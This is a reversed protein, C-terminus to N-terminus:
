GKGHKSPAARLTLTSQATHTAGSPDHAVITARALLVHSKALLKRATSSLHLTVAKTQGGAVTFSGASLTLVAKHKSSAIVAHLTRLTIRGICSSEGPPCTIKVVLSGGASVTLSTRGGLAADPFGEKFGLVGFRTAEDAHTKAAATEATARAEREQSEQAGKAAREQAAKERAEREVVEGEVIATVTGKGYVIQVGQQPNPCGPAPKIPIEEGASANAFSGSVSHIASSIFTFTELRTLTPCPPAVEVALKAEALAVTGESSLRSYDRGASDNAGVIQFAVTSAPDLTASAVELSGTPDAGRGVHLQTGKTTLPGLEGRGRFLINGLDVAAGDKANLKGEEVEAIGNESGSKHPDTGTITVAGAETTNDLDLAGQAGLEVTLVDTPQKHVTVPQELRLGQAGAEGSKNGNGLITWAQSESLELPMDIVDMAPIASEGSPKALIGNSSLALKDGLLTYPPGDDALHLSRAKLGSVNDESSYCADAPPCAALEPFDVEALTENAAPPVGGQWNGPESWGHGSAAGAWTLSLNAGAATAPVLCLCAATLLCPTGVARVLGQRTRPHPERGGIIGM